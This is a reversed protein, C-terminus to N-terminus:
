SRDLRTGEDAIGNLYQEWVLLNVRCSEVVREEIKLDRAYRAVGCWGLNSHEIDAQTHIDFFELAGDSLDFLDRWRVREFGFWGMKRQHGHGYGPVNAREACTNAVIGELWHTNSMLAEWALWALLTSPLAEAERIEKSRMGIHQGLEELVEWHARGGGYDEDSIIEQTCSRIIGIKIDWDPCNTAVRLKLVSNRYRTNLRHQQVFTRARGPTLEERFFRTRKAFSDVEADLRALLESNGVEM